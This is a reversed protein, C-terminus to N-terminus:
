LWTHRSNLFLFELYQEVNLSLGFGFVIRLDILDFFVGTRLNNLRVNNQFASAGLVVARFSVADTEQVPPIAVGFDAAANVAQVIPFILLCESFSM